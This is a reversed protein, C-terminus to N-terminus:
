HLISWGTISSPPSRCYTVEPKDHAGSSRKRHPADARGDLLAGRAHPVGVTAVAAGSLGVGGARRIRSHVCTCSTAGTRVEDSPRRGQWGILSSPAAIAHGGPQEREHHLRRGDNPVPLLRGLHGAVDYQVRVRGVVCERFRAEKDSRRCRRRDDAPPDRPQHVARLVTHRAAGRPRGRVLKWQATDLQQQHRHVEYTQVADDVVRTKLARYQAVDTSSAFVFM